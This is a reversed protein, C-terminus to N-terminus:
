ILVIGPHASQTSNVVPDVKKFTYVGEGKNCLYQPTLFIYRKKKERAMEVVLNMATRRTVHGNNESKSKQEKLTEIRTDYESLENEYDDVTSDNPAEASQLKRYE